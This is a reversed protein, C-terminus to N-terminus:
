VELLNTKPVSSDVGFIENIEDIGPYKAEAMVMFAQKDLYIKDEIRYFLRTM